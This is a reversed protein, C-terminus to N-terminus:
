APLEVTTLNWLAALAQGAAISNDNPSLRRHVLVRFGAAALAESALSHLLANQFCGGTLVVTGAGAHRAVDVMARALGRHFAAALVAPSERSELLSELAPQWDVDLTAGPTRATIHPFPLEFDDAVARAAAAEVALPMQGEFANRAGLGLLAGFGDFLRGASSCLPSNLGRELMTHLNAADQATVGLRTAVPEYRGSLHALALAIRRSDKVAAEGGALRFPRLRAFREAQNNRLLIFEGGWVTGDEGYGTGDWSIGLVDDATQNHELLCALVHALHHQVAVAPLGLSAAYQTSSYGPHKDHAVVTFKTRHVQGLMRITDAFVERTALNELDGIHPSLIVQHGAAVAVTNKMQGGTCLVSDAIREPLLLPAPAYGRARRLLIAEDRAAFRVVSDDVPRAIPRNHELFFDVIGGLREHADRNRSCIPEESLNGSTAVLPGGTEQLLLVHLPSYPLLAGIWPNDPALNAALPSSALRPVLVIPSQPSSLLASAAASVDAHERLQALDRFMVALPKEERQKRRRLLAVAHPNAADCMLHYGGLGKVAFIQGARLKAAATRLAVEHTALVNGTADALALHPGCVPCANPEAHFRRTAPDHYERACDFCMRFARMTTQPRDYPLNEILSYRPGCQTCNIFPYRHRRDTPDLLERRCDDCLALDPPTTAATEGGRRSALIRFDSGAPPDAPGPPQEDITEVIAAPPAEHVLAEALEEVRAADGAARVLVGETDNLVWGNLGLALAKRHVFPRFGVGQVTGRVRYLLDAIPTTPPM